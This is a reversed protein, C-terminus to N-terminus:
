LPFPKLGPRFRVEETEPQTIKEIYRLQGPPIWFKALSDKTYGMQADLWFGGMEMQPFDVYYYEAVQSGFIDLEIALAFTYYHRFITTM